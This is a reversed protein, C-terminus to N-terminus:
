PTDARRCTPCLGRFELRYDEVAYGGLERPTDGSLGYQNEHLDDLRGCALCRIHDHPSLDADFRTEAGGLDLRRVEVAQALRELNRYVTGLSIRPVRSRVRKYLQAATPHDKAHRLEDLIVERQRTKRQFGNNKM